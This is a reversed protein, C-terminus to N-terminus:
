AWTLFVGDTTVDRLVIDTADYVYIGDGGTEAIMVGTVSVLSAERRVASLL